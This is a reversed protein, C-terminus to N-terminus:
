HHYIYWLRMSIYPINNVTLKLFSSVKTTALAYELQLTHTNHEKNPYHWKILVSIIKDYWLEVLNFPTYHNWNTKVDTEMDMITYSYKTKETVEATNPLDMKFKIWVGEMIFPTNDTENQMCNWKFKEFESSLRPGTGMNISHQLRHRIQTKSVALIACKM